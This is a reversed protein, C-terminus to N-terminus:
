YKLEIDRISSKHVLSDLDKWININNSIRFDKKFECKGKQIVFLKILLDFNSPIQNQYIIETPLFWYKKLISTKGLVVIPSVETIGRNVGSIEPIDIISNKIERVAIFDRSFLIQNNQIFDVVLKVDDLYVLKGGSNTFAINM